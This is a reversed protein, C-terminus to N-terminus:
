GDNQTISTTFSMRCRKQFITFSERPAIWEITTKQQYYGCYFGVHFRNRKLDIVLMAHEAPCDHPMCCEAVLHGQILQIQSMTSYTETLRKWQEATLMKKLPKKIETANFFRKDPYARVWNTLDLSSAEASFVLFSLTILIVTRM